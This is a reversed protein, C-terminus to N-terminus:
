LDYQSGLVCALIGLFAQKGQNRKTIKTLRKLKSKKAYNKRQEFVSGFHKPSSKVLSQKNNKAPRDLFLLIRQGFILNQAMQLKGSTEGYDPKKENRTTLRQIGSLLSWLSKKLLKTVLYYFLDLTPEKSGVGWGGLHSGHRKERKQCRQKKGIEQKLKTKNM